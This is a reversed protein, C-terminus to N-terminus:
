RESNLLVSERFESDRFGLGKQMQTEDTNIQPESFNNSVFHPFGELARARRFRDARERVRLADTLQQKEGADSRAHAPTFFDGSDREISGAVDNTVVDFRLTARHEFVNPEHQFVGARRPLVDDVDCDKERVNLFVKGDVVLEVCFKEGSWAFWVRRARSNFDARQGGRDRDFELYDRRHSSFCKVASTPFVISASIQRRIIAARLTSISQVIVSTM